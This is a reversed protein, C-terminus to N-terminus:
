LPSVKGAEVENAKLNMKWFANLRSALVPEINRCCLGGIEEEVRFIAGRGGNAASFLPLISLTGYNFLIEDTNEAASVRHGLSVCPRCISQHHAVGWYSMEVTQRGLGAPERCFAKRLM